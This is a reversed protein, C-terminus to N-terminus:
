LNEQANFFSLLWFHKLDDLISINKCSDDVYQESRDNTQYVSDFLLSLLHSNQDSFISLVRNVAVVDVLNALISKKQEM